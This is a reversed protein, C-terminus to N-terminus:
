VPTMKLSLQNRNTLVAFKFTLRFGIGISIFIGKIMSASMNM